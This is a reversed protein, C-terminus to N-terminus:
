PLGGYSGLTYIKLTIIANPHKTVTIDLQETFLAWSLNEIKELFRQASIFNGELQLTLQYRGLNQPLTNGQVSDDSADLRAVETSLQLLKLDQERNIIDRLLQAAQAPEVVLGLQQQLTNDVAMRREHLERLHRQRDAYPEAGANEQNLSQAEMELVSMQLQLNEIANTTRKQKDMAPQYVLTDMLFFLIAISGLLMFIRERLGFADIVEQWHLMREKM